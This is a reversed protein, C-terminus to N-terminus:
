SAGKPISYLLENVLEIAVQFADYSALGFLRRWVSDGSGHGSAQWIVLGSQVELLRLTLSLEPYVTSGKRSDGAMDITGIFIAQVSLRQGLRRLTQRDMPKGPDIAEERLVSDVIGKDAVDFIGLALIQTIAIDRVREPAFEDKTNNEFPLVAIKKVFGFDVNERAFPQSATQVTCGGAFVLLIFVSILCCVTTKQPAIKQKAM